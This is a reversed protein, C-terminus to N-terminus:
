ARAWESNGSLGSLGSMQGCIDPGYSPVSVPRVPCVGKLTHGLHGTRDSHNLKLSAM